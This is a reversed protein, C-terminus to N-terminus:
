DSENLQLANEKWLDACCIEYHGRAEAPLDPRQNIVAM